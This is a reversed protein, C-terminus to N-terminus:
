VYFHTWFIQSSVQYMTPYTIFLKGLPTLNFAVSGVVYGMDLGALLVSIIAFGIFVWYLLWLVGGIVGVCVSLALCDVVYCLVHTCYLSCVFAYSLHIDNLDLVIKAAIQTLKM